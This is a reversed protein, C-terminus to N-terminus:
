WYTGCYKQQMDEVDFMNHVDTTYGPVICLRNNEHCRVMALGRIM